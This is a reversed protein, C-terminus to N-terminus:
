GQLLAPAQLALRRPCAVSRSICSLGIPSLNSPISITITPQSQQSLCCSVWWVLTMRLESERYSRIPTGDKLLQWEPDQDIPNDNGPTPQRYALTYTGDKDIPAPDANQIYTQTGHAM